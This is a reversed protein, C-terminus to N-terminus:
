LCTSGAGCSGSCCDTGLQCPQLTARCAGCTDDSLCLQGGGCSCPDGACDVYGQDCVHGCTGDGTCIATGNKVPKCCKETCTASSCGDEQSSSDALDSADDGPPDTSENSADGGHSGDAAAGEGTAGADDPVGSDLGLIGACGGLLTALATATATAASEAAWRRGSSLLWSM